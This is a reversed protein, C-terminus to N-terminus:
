TPRGLPFDRTHAAKISTPAYTSLTFLLPSVFEHEDAGRAVTRRPRARREEKQKQHYLPNNSNNNSTNNRPNNRDNAADEDGTPNRSEGPPQHGKSAVPGWAGLSSFALPIFRAGQAEVHAAHRRIKEDDGHRKIQTVASDHARMEHAFASIVTVDAGTDVGSDHLLRYSLDLRRGDDVSYQTASASTDVTAGFVAALM